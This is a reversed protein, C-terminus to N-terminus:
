RGDEILGYLEGLGYDILMLLVGVSSTLFIAILHLRQSKPLGRIPEYFGRKRAISPFLLGCGYAGLRPAEVFIGFDGYPQGNALHVEWDIAKQYRVHVYAVDVICFFILTVWASSLIVLIAEEISM